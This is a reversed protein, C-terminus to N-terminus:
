LILAISFHTPFYLVKYAGLQNLVDFLPGTYYLLMTLGAFVQLVIAPKLNRLLSSKVDPLAARVLDAFRHIYQIIMGIETLVRVNMCVFM